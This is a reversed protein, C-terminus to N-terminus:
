LAAIRGGPIKLMLQRCPRDQIGTHRFVEVMTKMVARRLTQGGATFLSGASVLVLLDLYAEVQSLVSRPIRYARGHRGGKACAAAHYARALQADGAPPPEVDTREDM